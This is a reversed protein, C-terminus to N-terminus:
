PTWADILRRTQGTNHQMRIRWILEEISMVHVRDPLRNACWVAPLYGREGGQKPSETDDQGMDEANEDNNSAPKFWSWVHCVVWEYRQGGAQKQAIQRAVKAPTGARDRGNLHNWIAYGASIVPVDVGNKDKVWWIQGAGGEYADYRFVLIALLGDTQAAWVKYATLADEQDLDTLNFGVINTHARKM